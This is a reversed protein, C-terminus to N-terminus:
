TAGPSLVMWESEKLIKLVQKESQDSASRHTLLRRALAKHYFTRFVDRDAFSSDLNTGIFYTNM